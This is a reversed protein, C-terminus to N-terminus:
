EESRILGLMALGVVHLGAAVLIWVPRMLFDPGTQSHGVIPLIFAAGFIGVALTNLMGAFFKLQENYRKAHLRKILRAKAALGDLADNAARIEPFPGSPDSV